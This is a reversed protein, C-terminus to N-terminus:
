LDDAGILRFFEQPNVGIKATFAQEDVMYSILITDFGHLTVGLRRRVTGKFAALACWISHEGCVACCLLAFAFDRRRGDLLALDCRPDTGPWLSLASTAFRIM